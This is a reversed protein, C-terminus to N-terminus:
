KQRTDRSRNAVYGNTTHKNAVLDPSTRQIDRTADAVLSQGSAIAELDTRVVKTWLRRLTAFVLLVTLAVAVASWILNPAIDAM